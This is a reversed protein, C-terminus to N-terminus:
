DVGRGSAIRGIEAFFADLEPTDLAINLKASRERFKGEVLEQALQAVLWLRQLMSPAVKVYLPHATSVLPPPVISEAEKQITLLARAMILMERIHGRLTALEEAPPDYNNLTAQLPVTIAALTIALARIQDLHRQCIRKYRDLNVTEKPLFIVGDSVQKSDALVRSLPRVFQTYLLQIGPSLVVDTPSVTATLLGQRILLDQLQAGDVLEIPKGEAFRRAEKTFTSNTILIGKNAAESHVVGFLDRIVSNGVSGSFRKCQIIFKGGVIADGQTAVMDIGGDAAACRGEIKLGMRSLLQEILDEFEHGNMANFLAFNM